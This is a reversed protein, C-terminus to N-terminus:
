RDEEPNPHLLALVGDALATWGKRYADGDEITTIGEHKALIARWDYRYEQGLLAEIAALTARSSQVERALAAVETIEALTILTDQEHILAWVEDDSLRDNTTM